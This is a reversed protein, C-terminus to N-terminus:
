ERQGYSTRTGSPQRLRLSTTVDSARGSARKGARRMSVAVASSVLVLEEALLRERGTWQEIGRTAFARAWALWGRYESPM